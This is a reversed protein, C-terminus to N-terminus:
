RERERSLEREEERGRKRGRERERERVASEKRLVRKVVREEIRERHRGSYWLAHVKACENNTTTQRDVRMVCFSNTWTNKHLGQAVQLSTSLYSSELHAGTVQHAQPTSRTQHAQPAAHNDDNHHQKDTTTQHIKTSAIDTTHHM